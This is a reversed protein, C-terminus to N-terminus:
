ESKQSCDKEASTFDFRAKLTSCIKGGPQSMELERPHTNANNGTKAYVVLAIEGHLFTM